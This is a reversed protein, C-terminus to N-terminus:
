RRRAIARKLVRVLPGLDIDFRPFQESYCQPCDPPLSEHVYQLFATGHDSVYKRLFYNETRLYNVPQRYITAFLDPQESVIRIVDLLGVPVIRNHWPGGVFRVSATGISAM